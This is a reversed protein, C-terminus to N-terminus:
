SRGRSKVRQYTERLQKLMPNEFRWVHVPIGIAGFRRKYEVMGQNFGSTNFDFYCYGRDIADRIIETDAVPIVHHNLFDRHATGTWFSVQQNWYFFLRGGVIQENVIMLWLKIQEPYSQSLAYIQEFVHWQYGFNENEGWRDVADRYSAYYARYDDLSTALHIQVGKKIGSRYAARRSRSFRSFITAFDADLMLTYTTEHVLASMKSTVTDPLPPALPNDLMHFTYTSMSCAHQYIQAAEDPSVPGDAIFGGFCGEFTSLLWRLPGRRRTSIM